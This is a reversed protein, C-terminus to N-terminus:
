WRGGEIFALIFRPISRGDRAHLIVVHSRDGHFDNDTIRVVREGNADELVRFDVTEVWTADSMRYAAAAIWHFTETRIISLVEIGIPVSSKRRRKTVPPAYNVVM